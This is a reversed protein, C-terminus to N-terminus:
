SIGGEESNEVIAAGFHMPFNNPFPTGRAEMAAALKIYAYQDSTQYKERAQALMAQFHAIMEPYRDGYLEKCRDRYGRLQANVKAVQQDLDTM